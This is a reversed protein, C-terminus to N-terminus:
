ISLVFNIEIIFITRKPSKVEPCVRCDWLLVSQDVNVSIYDNDWVGSAGVTPM